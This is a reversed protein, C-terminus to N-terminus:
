QSSGTQLGTPWGFAAIEYKPHGVPKCVPDECVVFLQDTTDKPLLGPKHGYLDLYYQYAADYNSGAILAFNFPKNNSHAIVFKAIEQTRQLQNSPPYNLPNRSLNLAILVLMLLVLVAQAMIKTKKPLQVLKQSVAGLLLFPTPNFFGLYHDNIQQKTLSLGILGLALWTSLALKPWSLPKHSLKQKILWAIPTLGLLGIVLSLTWNEATLYRGILNNFYIPIIKTLSFVPNISVGADKAFFISTFAKLNVFQHRIDFTILPSMVLFFALMSLASNQWFYTRKKQDIHKLEYAWLLIVIPILILSLYHMQLAAAVSAGTLILWRSKGTQYSKYLGLISLLAFFPAPNPNWSSRSYIVTVSSVSYLISAVVAALKGFWVRSLYYILSVTLVGIVAVMYSAAIPNLWFIAMSFAMLYYYLPGLNIIGGSSTSVSMPPGITVLHHNVLIDKVVLADRGEDGLFTMYGPLQYFRLFCAVGLIILLTFVECKNKNIWKM